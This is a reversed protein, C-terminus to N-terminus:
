VTQVTFSFTCGGGPTTEVSVAGGHRQAIHKVIALGLGTGGLARSRAKDVRYFREFLRTRHEPAIGIGHDIVSFRAQADEVTLILEVTKSGAYRLANETLNQLADELLHADCLAHAHANHLLILGVGQAAAKPKMLTFANRLVDALDCLSFDGRMDTDGREIRSLALIDQALRNLRVSQEQVVRFMATRDEPTLAADETLVDVAGLIGTLPTKIEHSVNSVFERRFSELDRLESLQKEQTTCSARIRDVRQFHRRALLFTALVSCGGALAAGVPGGQVWALVTFTLMGSLAGTLGLLVFRTNM